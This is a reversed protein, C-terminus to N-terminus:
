SGAVLTLIWIFPRKKRSSHRSFPPLIPGLVVPTKELIHSFFVHFHDTYDIKADFM